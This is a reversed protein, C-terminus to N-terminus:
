GISIKNIYYSFEERKLFQVDRTLDWNLIIETNNAIIIFNEVFEDSKTTQFVCFNSSNGNILFQLTYIENSALNMLELYNETM